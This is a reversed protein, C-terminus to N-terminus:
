IKLYKIPIVTWLPAMELEKQKSRESRGRGPQWRRSKMCFCLAGRLSHHLLPEGTSQLDGSASGAM